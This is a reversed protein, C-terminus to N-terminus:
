FNLITSLCFLFYELGQKDRIDPRYIYKLDTLKGILSEEIQTEKTM